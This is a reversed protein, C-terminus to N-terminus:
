FVSGCAAEEAPHPASQIARGTERSLLLGRTSGPRYPLTRVTRAMEVAAAWLSDPIRSCRKASGAGISLEGGCPKWRAPLRTDEQYGDVTRWLITFRCDVIGCEEFGKVCLWRFSVSLHRSFSRLPWDRLTPQRGTRHWCTLSLRGPCRQSNLDGPLAASRKHCHLVRGEIIARNASDRTVLHPSVRPEDTVCIGHVHPATGALVFLFGPSPARAFANLASAVLAPVVCILMVPTATLFTPIAFKLGAMAARYPKVTSVTFPVVITRFDPNYYRHTGWLEQFTPQRPNECPAATIAPGGTQKVLQLLRVFLASHASPLRILGPLIVLTPTELGFVPPENKRRM